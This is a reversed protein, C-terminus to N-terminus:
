KATVISCITVRNTQMTRISALARLHIRSRNSHLLNITIISPSSKRKSKTSPKISFILRPAVQIAASLTTLQLQRPNNNNIQLTTPLHLSIRVMPPAGLLNSHLFLQLLQPQFLEWLSKNIQTAVLASLVRLRTILQGLITRGM